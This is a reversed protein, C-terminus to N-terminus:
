RAGPYHRKGSWVLEDEVETRSGCRQLAAFLCVNLGVVTRRGTHSDDRRAGFSTYSVDRGSLPLPTALTPKSAAPLLM